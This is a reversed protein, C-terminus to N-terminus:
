PQPIIDVVRTQKLGCDQRVVAISDTIKVLLITTRCFMIRSDGYVATANALTWVLPLVFLILNVLM